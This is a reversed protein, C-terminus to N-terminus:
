CVPWPRSCARSGITAHCCGRACTHCVASKAPLLPRAHEVVNEGLLVSVTLRTHTDSYCPFLHRDGRLPLLALHLALLLLLVMLLCASLLSRRASPEEETGQRVGPPRPCAHDHLAQVRRQHRRPDAEVGDGTYLVFLIGDYRTSLFRAIPQPTRSSPQCLVNAQAGSCTRAFSMKGEVM